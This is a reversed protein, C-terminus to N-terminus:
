RQQAAMWDWIRMGEHQPDNRAVYIWSWHGPYDVGDWEVTPYLSLISDEILEHFRVTNAEADITDDNAAAVLWTPTQALSRLTDDSLHYTGEPGSVAGCIPVQSAFRGPQEAVMKLTMFGGNSCGLVHIRDEDIDERAVVEDIVAQIQPAFGDGDQMWASTSQPALVYAGGFAEQAEDTAFGLAGRNAWLTTENDYYDHGGTLLGGEGGGHLWVVLARDKRRSTGKPGKSSPTFLRYKLGGDVQHHTFADVEPSLLEGQVFSSIEVEAGSGRKRLPTAQTITYELDLRVNRGSTYLLTSAGAVDQGHELELVADRGSWRVATVVRDQEYALAGDLPSTARVHVAFTDVTLSERAVPALAPSRLAVSVVQEGGDLVEARLDFRTEAYGGRGPPAAQAAPLLASAGVATGVAGATLLSRRPLTTRM